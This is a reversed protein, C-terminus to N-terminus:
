SEAFEYDVNAWQGDTPIVVESVDGTKRVVEFARLERLLDASYTSYEDSSVVAEFSQRSCMTFFMAAKRLLFLNYRDSIALLKPSTAPSLLMSLYFTCADALPKIPGCRVTLGM